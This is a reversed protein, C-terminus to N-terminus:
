KKMGFVTCDVDYPKYFVELGTTVINVPYDEGVSISNSEDNNAPDADAADQVKLRGKVPLVCALENVSIAIKTWADKACAQSFTYAAM